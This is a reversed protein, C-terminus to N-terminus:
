HRSSLIVRTLKLYRVVGAIFTPTFSIVKGQDDKAPSTDLTALMAVIAFWTSADGTSQRRGLGFVCQAPDDDTLAGNVDIFREPIFRSVDPYRWTNYTIIAGKPIYM